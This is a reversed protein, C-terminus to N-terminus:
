WIHKQAPYEMSNWFKELKERILLFQENIGGVNLGIVVFREQLPAIEQNINKYDCKEIGGTKNVALVTVRQDKRMLEYVPM